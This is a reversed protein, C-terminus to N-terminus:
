GGAKISKIFQSINARIDEWHPMLSDNFDCLLTVGPTLDFYTQCRRAAPDKEKACEVAINEKTTGDAIYYIDEAGSLTYHKSIFLGYRKDHESIGKEAAIVNDAIYSAHSFLKTSKLEIINPSHWRKRYVFEDITKETAGNFDPFHIVAQFFVTGDSSYIATELYNRPINLVAGNIHITVLHTEVSPTYVIYKESVSDAEAYVPHSGLLCVCSILFIIKSLYLKSLKM